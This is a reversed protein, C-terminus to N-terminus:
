GKKDFREALFTSILPIAIYYLSGLILAPKVIKIGEIYKELKPSNKNAERFKKIFKDTPKKTLRDVAYGGAICLGTSIGANYMLAKKREEEIKKSKATQTIFTGTALADTLAMIHMEFNTNHFKETLKKVAPTDLIKGINKAIKDTTGTFSPSNYDHQFNFTSLQFNNLKGSEVKRKGSNFIKEMITPIMACTLISKPVAIVFGLGLKFLQTAFKYKSSKLLSKEGNQLAKITENKLYKSPNENIKKVSKALPLSAFLMLGYGIASSALSKATAYKRNEKDTKPTSMIAIPRAVTSLVLSTTGVFLAGNDSAFELGKKLLKNNYIAQVKM